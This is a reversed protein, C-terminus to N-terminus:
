QGDAAVFIESYKIGIGHFKPEFRVPVAELGIGSYEGGCMLIELTFPVVPYSLGPLKVDALLAGSPSINRVTASGADYLAGSETLLRIQAPISVDTRRTERYHTRVHDLFEAAREAAEFVAGDTRAGADANSHSEAIPKGTRVSIRALRRSPRNLNENL